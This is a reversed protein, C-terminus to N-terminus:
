MRDQEIASWLQSMEHSKSIRAVISRGSRKVIGDFTGM